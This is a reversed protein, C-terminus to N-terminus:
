KVQKPIIFVVQSMIKKINKVICKMSKNQTKEMWFKMTYVYHKVYMILIIFFEMDELRGTKVSEEADVFDKIEMFSALTYGSFVHTGFEDEMIPMHEDRTEEM